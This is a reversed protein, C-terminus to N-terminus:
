SKLCSTVTDEEESSPENDWALTVTGERRVETATGTLEYQEGAVEAEEATRHFALTVFNDPLTVGLGGEGGTAATIDADDESAKVGEEQLCKATARLSYHTEDEGGCAALGLSLVLVALIALASLKM